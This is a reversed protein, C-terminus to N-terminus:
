MHISVGEMYFNVWEKFTLEAGSKTKVRDYSFKKQQHLNTVLTLAHKLLATM